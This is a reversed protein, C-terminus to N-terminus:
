AIVLLTNYPGFVYVPERENNKSEYKPNAFVPGRKAIDALKQSYQFSKKM